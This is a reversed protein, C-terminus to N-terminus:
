LDKTNKSVSSWAGLSSVALLTHRFSEDFWLVFPTLESISMKSTKHGELVEETNKKCVNQILHKDKSRFLLMTFYLDGFSFKQLKKMRVICTSPPSVSVPPSLVVKSVRGSHFRKPAKRVVVSGHFM